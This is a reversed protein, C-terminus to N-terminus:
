KKTAPAPAAAPPATTLKTVSAKGEAGPKDNWENAKGDAMEERVNWRLEKATEPNKVTFALELYKDPQVAVQWTITTIRNGTKGTAFTGSAPTAVSVVTAGDPIQVEVSKTPVKEDNHVRVKYVQSGGAPSAQPAVAVHASASTAVFLTLLAMVSTKM